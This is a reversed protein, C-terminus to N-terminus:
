RTESMEIRIPTKDTNLQCHVKHHIARSRVKLSTKKSVCARKQIPITSKKKQNLKLPRSAVTPTREYSRSPVPVSETLVSQSRLSRKKQLVSKQLRIEDVRKGLLIKADQDLTKMNCSGFLFLRAFNSEPYTYSPQFEQWLRDRVYEETYRHHQSQCIEKILKTIHEDSNRDKLSWKPFNPSQVLFDLQALFEIVEHHVTQSM